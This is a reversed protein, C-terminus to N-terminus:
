RAPPVAGQRVARRPAGAPTRGLREFLRTLRPHGPAVALGARCAVRAHDVRGLARWAHARLLFVDAGAPSISGLLDLTARAEGAELLRAGLDIRAAVGPRPAARLAREDARLGRRLDADIWRHFAPLHGLAAFTGRGLAASRRRPQGAFAAALASVARASDELETAVEAALVLARPWAHARATGSALLTRASATNGRRAAVRAEIILQRSAQLDVLRALSRVPDVADDVRLDVDLPFGEPTRVLLAASQRGTRQGGAADGAHLAALLRDALPGQTAIFAREMTVLVHPGVLGNGQVSFGPGSRAGAWGAAAVDAGTHVATTGDLSVLAVQRAEPGRGEFAGDENLLTRLVVDPPLGQALLAIGRLGHRPHTEFQSAVAGVGAQASPVSAGVALNDTQVAVGCQGTARECAVISYTAGLPAVGLLCSVVVMATLRM